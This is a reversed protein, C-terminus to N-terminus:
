RWFSHAAITRVRAEKTTHAVTAHVDTVASTDAPIPPRPDDTCESRSSPLVGNILYDDIKATVCPNTGYHGHKGSDRVSILQDNLKAAMAPGGDYQTAPDGDAQIVVGTPYNARNLPVPKEPPTFSRFTCNNPAAGIVGSGNGDAYPYRERFLRMDKYYTELDTPWDAECTVTDYVGSDVKAIGQDHLLGVATSTDASLATGEAAAQRVEVIVEATVDWVARPQTAQGLFRDLATRDFSKPWYAPWDEPRPRTFPVSRTALQAALAEITALVEAPSKGLHYTNDRQGVWTAWQEVNFRSAVSQQKFQERWLWDPHISSDLVSRNLRRPFLSGYVAGLYTGYSYGVYNIKSEGLATRIVDMDRATNATNIFPRIGGGARQCAAEHAKAYETFAAFEEDTPRTTAPRTDPIRECMLRSSRGVGRPDFGIVDFHKALESGRTQLPMGLGGGGPGGPNFLVVGQRLSPDSAKTRSIEIALSSDRPRAYNLPVVVTACEMQGWQGQWPDIIIGDDPQESPDPPPQESCQHWAAPPADVGTIGDAAATRATGAVMGGLLVAVIGAVLRAKRDTISM